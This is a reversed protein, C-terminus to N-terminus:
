LPWVGYRVWYGLLKVYEMRINPGMGNRSWEARDLGEYSPRSYFQMEPAAHRFCNLARRSHFWSTVIIANTLGARRLIAVSFEANEMTNRSRDEVVIAGAPVGRAKLMAEIEECGGPGGSVVVVPAANLRFLEAARAPRHVPDGGLVVLADAMVPGSDVTLIQHPFLYCALVAASLAVVAGLSIWFLWRKRSVSKASPTKLITATM